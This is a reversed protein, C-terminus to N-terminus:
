IKVNYKVETQKKNGRESVATLFHGRKGARKTFMEKQVLESYIQQALYMFLYYYYNNTEIILWPHM